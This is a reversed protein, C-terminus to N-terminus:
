DSEQRPAQSHSASLRPPQGWLLRNKGYLNKKRAGSSQVNEIESQSKSRSQNKTAGASHLEETATAKARAASPTFRHLPSSRGGESHCAQHPAVVARFPLAM